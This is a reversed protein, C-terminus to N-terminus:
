RSRKGTTLRHVLRLDGSASPGKRWLQRHSQKAAEAAYGMEAAAVDMGVTLVREVPLPRRQWRERWDVTKLYGKCAECVYLRYDEGPYYGLGRHDENSCYPCTVRKFIWETDCRSCLLWRGAVDKELAALDPWGGCVPCYSRYWLTDDVLPALVVAHIQLFPHLTQNLAFCLLEGNLDAVQAAEVRDAALYDSVTTKFAEPADHPLHQIGALADALDPRCQVAIRCVEDFLRLLADWDLKLEGMQLLPRGQKVPMGADVEPSVPAPPAVRVQAELLRCHLEVTETLAPQGEGEDRLAALIEIARNSKAM